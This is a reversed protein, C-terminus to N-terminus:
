GSASSGLCRRALSSEPVRSEAIQCKRLDDRKVLFDSM